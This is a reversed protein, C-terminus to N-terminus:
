KEVATATFSYGQTLALFQLEDFLDKLYEEDLDLTIGPSVHDEDSIVVVVKGLM